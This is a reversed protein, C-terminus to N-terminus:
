KIALLIWQDCYKTCFKPPRLEINLSALKLGIFLPNIYVKSFIDSVASQLSKEDFEFVHDPNFPYKSSSGLKILNMFMLAVRNTARM